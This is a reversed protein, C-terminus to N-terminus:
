SFILISKLVFNEPRLIFRKILMFKAREFDANFGSKDHKRLM